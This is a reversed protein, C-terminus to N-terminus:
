IVNFSISLFNLFKILLSYLLSMFKEIFVLSFIGLLFM